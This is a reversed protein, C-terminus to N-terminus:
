MMVTTRRKNNNSSNDSSRYRQSSSPGAQTSSPRQVNAQAQSRMHARQDQRRTPSPPRPSYSASRQTRLSGEPAQAPSTKPVEGSYYRQHGSRPAGSQGTSQQPRSASPTSQQPLPATSRRRPSRDPAPSHQRSSGSTPTRPYQQMMFPANPPLLPMNMNMGMGMGMNMNMGGMGGMNPMGWVPVMVPPLPPVPPIGNMPLMPNMAFPVPPVPIPASNVRPLSLRKSSSSLVSSPRGIGQSNEPPLTKRTTLTPRSSDSSLRSPSHGSSVISQRRDDKIAGIVSSPRSGSPSPRSSLNDQSKSARPLSPTRRQSPQAQNQAPDYAPRSYARSSRERENADRINTYSESGLRASEIRRRAAVVEEALISKRREERLRREEEAKRREEELRLMEAETQKKEEEARKLRKEREAQLFREKEERKKKAQIAYALPVDDYADRGKRRSDRDKSDSRPAVAKSPPQSTSTVLVPSSSVPPTALSTMSSVPSLVPAAPSGQELRLQSPSAFSPTSRASHVSPIPSKSPPQPSSNTAKTAKHLLCASHCCTLFHEPRFHFTIM